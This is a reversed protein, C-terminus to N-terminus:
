CTSSCRGRVRARRRPRRVLQGHERGSGEAQHPHGAARAQTMDAIVASCRRRRRHRPRHRRREGPVDYTRAVNFHTINAAGTAASSRRWTASRRRRAARRRSRRRACRTSALRDRVAADAGLGPVARRAQRDLLDARGPGSSSSRSRAPRERRRARHARGAAGDDSRHRRRLQPVRPCRPSTSTPRARCRRSARPSSPRSRSPRQGRQRDPRRGAVDIPAALGFNLVQTSIDPALFFFTTDPYARALLEVCRRARLGRDAPAGAQALDPDARGRVLDARGRQCRCTSASYPQGMIDLM